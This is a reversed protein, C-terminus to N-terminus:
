NVDEIIQDGVIPIRTETAIEFGTETALSLPADVELIIDEVVFPSQVGEDVAVNAFMVFGTPHIIDKVFTDYQIQQLPSNIVYSFWQYFESDQVVADISSLQSKETVFKGLPSSVGDVEVRVDPNGNVLVKGASTFENYINENEKVDGNVERLTLIQRNNDWSVVKAEMTRHEDIGQYVVQGTTFAQAFGEVQALIVRSEIQIEPKLSIDASIARGPNIIDFAQLKGIDKTTCIFKGDTELIRLFPEVYNQGPNTVTIATISEGEVTVTAEAGSGSGTVDYFFAQPNSYRSGGKDVTVGGITTGVL